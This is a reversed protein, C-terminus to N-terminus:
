TKRAARKEKQNKGHLERELDAVQKSLIFVAQKVCLCIEQEKDPVNCNDNHTVKM